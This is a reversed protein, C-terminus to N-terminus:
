EVLHVYEVKYMSEVILVWLVDGGLGMLIWLEWFVNLHWTDLTGGVLNCAYM